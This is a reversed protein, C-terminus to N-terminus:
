PLSGTILQTEARLGLPQEAKGLSAPVDEAEQESGRVRRVWAGPM